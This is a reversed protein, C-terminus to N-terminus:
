RGIIIKRERGRVLLRKKHPLVDTEKSHLLQAIEENDCVDFVSKKNENLIDLSAGYELLIKVVEVHQNEVADHLPTDGNYGQADIKAGNQWKCSV